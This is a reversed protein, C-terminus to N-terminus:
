KVPKSRSRYGSPSIGMLDTFKTAFYQSSGFGCELAIDIVKLETEALLRAAKKMRLGILYEAPSFGTLFKVKKNFASPSMGFSCALDEMNIKQHCNKMMREHLVTAFDDAHVGGSQRNKLTRGVHLLLSDMHMNVMERCGEEKESLERHIQRLLVSIDKEQSLVPNDNRALQSGLWSQTEPTLSSWSGLELEGSQQFNQPHVVVWGLIGRDLVEDPSGHWQWPCTIFIQGPYVHHYSNEVKWRYIGKLVYCIEIGDNYHMNLKHHGLGKSKRVGFQQLWASVPAQFEDGRKHIFYLEKRPDMM